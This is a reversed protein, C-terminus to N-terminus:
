TRLIVKGVTERAELATHAAAADALRFERVLPTMRGEAAAALASTELPRLGGTGRLLAPGLTVQASLCRAFLDDATFGIPAGSSWGFLVIRGGVTLMDMALRAPEGGVGDYLLTPERGALGRRAAEPWDPATYDVGIVGPAVEALRDLKHRGGALGVVAAGAALAAQVLLTGVGGAAATVVVVDGATVPAQHLVALATRGTGIMAVAASATLGDPLVHLAEPERVAQEAYGGSAIGLHTVVRRGLWQPDVGDGLADVTGAVERGPTMPLDARGFPNSDDGNRIVTDLLHVGAAEVAIRVRGPAPALDPVEEYRLREPGGFEYQRIAYM